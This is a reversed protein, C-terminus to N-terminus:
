VGRGTGAPRGPTDIGWTEVVEWRANMASSLM